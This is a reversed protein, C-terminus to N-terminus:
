YKKERNIEAKSRTDNVKWQGLKRLMKESYNHEQGSIIKDIIDTYFVVM